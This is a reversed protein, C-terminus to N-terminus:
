WIADKGLSRLVDIASLTIIRWLLSKGCNLLLWWLQIVIQWLKKNHNYKSLILINVILIILFPMNIVHLYTEFLVM